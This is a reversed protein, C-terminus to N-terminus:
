LGIAQFLDDAVQPSQVNCNPCMPGPSPINMWFGQIEIPTTSILNLLQSTTAIGAPPNTSLGAYVKADVDSSKAQEVAVNLLHNFNGPNFELSQSQVEVIQAYQSLKGYFDSRSIYALKQPFDGPILSLGPAAILYYGYRRALVSAMAYYKLPDQQEVLPTFQWRELDLLIGTTGAPVAHKQIALQFDAYSKYTTIKQASFSLTPPSNPPVIVYNGAQNLNSQVAPTLQSLASNAIMWNWSRNVSALRTSSGITPGVGSLLMVGLLSLSFVVRASIYKPQIRGKLRL